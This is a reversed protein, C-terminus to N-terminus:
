RRFAKYYDNKDTVLDFADSDNLGFQRLYRVVGACPLDYVNKQAM